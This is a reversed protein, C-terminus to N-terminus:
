GIPMPDPAFEGRIPPPEPALVACAAAISGSLDHLWAPGFPTEIRKRSLDRNQWAWAETGDLAEASLGTGLAKTLAERRVWARLFARRKPNGEPARGWVPRQLTRRREMQEGSELDVGVPGHKSIAGLWRGGDHSQSVYPGASRGPGVAYPRGRFDTEIRWGDNGTAIELARRLAARAALFRHRDIATQLVSIRAAESETTVWADWADLNTSFVLLCDEALRGQPVMTKEILM